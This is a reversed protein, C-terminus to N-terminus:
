KIIFSARRAMQRANASNKDVSSDVGMGVASIRSESIGAEILLQAAANARKESLKQNYDASGMEDAYGRVEVSASPNNELYTKLFNINSISSAAVKSSNYDFFASIFGQETLTKVFDNYNNEVPKTNKLDEVDSSIKNINQRAAALDEASATGNRYSEVKDSLTEYKNLLDALADQDKLYWDAHKENRGLYVSLGVTGNFIVGTKTQPGHTDWALDMSGCPLIASGDVNIAGWKGLRFQVTAGGMLNWSADAEDLLSGTLFGMGPGAHFLLGISKTWEEFRLVRGMNAVFQFNVRQYAADFDTSGDGPTINNYGYDIKAGFMQSWMWRVGVDGTVWSPTETYYGPTYNRWAKNFGIGGEISWQDYDKQAFASSSVLAVIALLFLKRKM